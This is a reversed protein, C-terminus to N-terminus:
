QSDLTGGLFGLKRAGASSIVLVGGCNGWALCVGVGSHGRGECVTCMAVCLELTGGCLEAACMSARWTGAM